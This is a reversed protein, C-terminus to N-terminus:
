RTTWENIVDEVSKDSLDLLDPRPVISEPRILTGLVQLHPGVSDHFLFKKDMLQIFRIFDKSSIVLKRPYDFHSILNYVDISTIM